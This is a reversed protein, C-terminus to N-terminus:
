GFRLKFMTADEESRFCWYYESYEWIAAHNQIDASYLGTNDMSFSYKRNGFQDVVLSNETGISSNDRLLIPFETKVKEHWSEYTMAAGNFFVYRDTGIGTDKSM